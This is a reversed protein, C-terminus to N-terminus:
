SQKVPARHRVPDAQGPRLRTNGRHRIGGQTNARSGELQVTVLRVSKTNNCRGRVRRGALIYFGDGPMLIQPKEGIVELLLEGSLVYGALDGSLSEYEPREGAFLEEDLM